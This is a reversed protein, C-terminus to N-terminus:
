RTEDEVRQAWQRENFLATPNGQAAQEILTRFGDVRAEEARKGQKRADEFAKFAMDGANKPEESFAAPDGQNLTNRAAAYEAEATGPEGPQPDPDAQGQVLGVEAAAATIAEATLEGDYSKLFMAGLPTSTNIGAELVAVKRELQPVADAKKAKERLNRIHEAEEAQEETTPDEAQEAM